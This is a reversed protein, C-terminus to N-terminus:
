GMLLNFDDPKQINKADKNKATYAAWGKNLSAKYAKHEDREYLQETQPEACVDMVKGPGASIRPQQIEEAVQKKVGAIREIKSKVEEYEKPTLNADSPDGVLVVVPNLKEKANNSAKVRQLKQQLGKSVAESIELQAVNKFIDAVLSVLKEKGEQHTHSLWKYLKGTETEAEQEKGIPRVNTRLRSAENMRSAAVSKEVDPLLYSLLHPFDSFAIQINKFDDLSAIHPLEAHDTALGRQHWQVAQRVFKNYEDIKQNITNVVEEKEHNRLSLVDEISQALDDTEGMNLMVRRANAIIRDITGKSIAASEEKRIKKFEKTDGLSKINSGLTDNKEDRSTFTGGQVDATAPINSGGMVDAQEQIMRAMVKQWDKKGQNINHSITTDEADM